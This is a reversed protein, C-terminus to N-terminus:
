GYDFFRRSKERLVQVEETYEGEAFRKWYSLARNKEGPIILMEIRTRPENMLFVYLDDKFAFLPNPRDSGKRRLNKRPDPNGYGVNPHEIMDGHISTINMPGYRSINGTLAMDAIRRPDTDVFQRAQNKRIYFMGSSNVFIGMGRMSDDSAFWTCDLRETSKIKFLARTDEPLVVFEFYHWDNM